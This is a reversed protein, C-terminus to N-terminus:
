VGCPPVIFIALVNVVTVLLFTTSLMLGSAAIFRTRGEGTELLAASRAHSTGAGTSGQHESRTRSWARWAVWTAAVCILVAFLGVTFAVGRVNGFVPISVPELRPFCAHSALPLNILTQLTWAAPGGFFGFALAALRV